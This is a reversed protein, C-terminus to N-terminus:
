EPMMCNGGNANNFVFCIFLWYWWDLLWCFLEVFFLFCRFEWFKLAHKLDPLFKMGFLEFAWTSGYFSQETRSHKELVAM